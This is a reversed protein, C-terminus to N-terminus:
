RPNPLEPEDPQAPEADEQRDEGDQAPDDLQVREDGEDGCERQARGPVRRHVPAQRESVLPSAPLSWTVVQLEREQAPTQHEADERHEDVDAHRADERTAASTAINRL